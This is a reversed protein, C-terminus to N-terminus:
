RESPPRVNSFQPWEFCSVQPTSKTTVAICRSSGKLHLFDSIQHGMAKRNLHTIFNCLRIRKEFFLGALKYM